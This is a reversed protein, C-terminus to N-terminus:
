DTSTAPKSSPRKTGVRVVQIKPKYNSVFTDTRVVKGDKSVIREVSISRGTVGGDQIVKVGSELTPDKVTETPFPRMNRWEGVRAEVEYGPDTGYLAVTISSSTYSVSVLVWKETDNKFKLDPGGWSVTADRGTPYHSIYFSHNRREIVPFGSEFVANFVTTGVQCVGGGLQPVLRGNVIANAQQYGKAATRQGAIGNFSFTGGPPILKGNLADGLLHINTVRPANGSPYTTTYSSIRERIGMKRADATTVKPVTRTTRLEVVRDASADALEDTLSLALSEVDPGIGDQSPVITVAGADTKFSADRAPRGIGSGITTTIPKIARKPDVFVELAVGAGRAGTSGAQSARFGLWDGVKEPAFEWSKKEYTITVPRALMAEATDAAQRADADTVKVAAVVVPAEIRHSGTSSFAKLLLTTTKGLDLVRGDSGSVVTPTGDEIKVTADVPKVDIEDAIGALALETKGADVTGAASLDVGRTWAAFREAITALIAEDRGVEMAQAVATSTDYTLGLSDSTVEWERSGEVVTAPVAARRELERGLTDNARQPTLGGIDIGAVSVGPHVRGVTVAVEATIGLVLVAVVAALALLWVRGRSAHSRELARERRRSAYDIRPSDETESPDNM